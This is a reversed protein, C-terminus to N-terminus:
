SESRSLEEPKFNVIWYGTRLPSGERKGETYLLFSIKYQVKEQKIKGSVNRRLVQTGIIQAANKDNKDIDFSDTTWSASWGEDRERQLIGNENLYKYFVNASSPIMMALSKPVDKSRSALDVAYFSQLFNNVLERKDDDKLNDEGMQIQETAGFNMDDLQAIRQGDPTQVAVMVKPRRFYGIAAVISVVVLGIALIAIIRNQRNIAKIANIVTQQDSVAIVARKEEQKLFEQDADPAPNTEQKM